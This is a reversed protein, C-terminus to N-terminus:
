ASPDSRAAEWSEPLGALARVYGAPDVARGEALVDFVERAVVSALMHLIEHREYGAALLRQATQWAEPPDGDWLQSAVIEHLALQLRPNVPEGGVVTEEDGREIAEALEPHEALVLAGRDDPDAPDLLWLDVDGLTGRAPPVAFRRREEDEPGADDARAEDLDELWELSEGLLLAALRDRFGEDSAFAECARELAASAEQSDRVPLQRRVREVLLALRRRHDETLMRDAQASIVAQWQEEEIEDSDPLAEDLAIAEHVGWLDCPELVVTLLDAPESRLDDDRELLELLDADLDRQEGLAAAVAGKVVAEQVLAEDGLDAVYSRWADPFWEAYVRGIREREPDGLLAVGEELVEDTAELSEADAWIEDVWADFRESEPRLLPFLKPLALLEGVIGSRRELEREQARTLGCCLKYKRGSGCPCPANRPVPPM